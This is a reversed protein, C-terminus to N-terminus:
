PAESAHPLPSGPPLVHQCAHAKALIQPSRPNIGGDQSPNFVFVPGNSGTTPDPFDPLGHSRMCRAFKLDDTLQQRSQAQTLPQYPWLRECARGAAQYHPNSNALQILTTKGGPIQGSSDPGPFNPVGHSRMCRAYSLLSPSNASGGSGTTSPSGGCATALVAAAAMVTMVAATRARRRRPRSRPPPLGPGSGPRNNM